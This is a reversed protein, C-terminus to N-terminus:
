LAQSFGKIGWHDKETSHAVVSQGTPERRTIEHDHGTAAPPYPELLFTKADDKNFGRGATNGHHSTTGPSAM